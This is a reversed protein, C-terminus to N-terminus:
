EHREGYGSKRFRTEVTEHPEYPEDPVIKEPRREIWVILLLVISVGLGVWAIVSYAGETMAHSDM